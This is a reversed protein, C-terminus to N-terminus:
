REGNAPEVPAASVFNPRVALFAQFFLTRLALEKTRCLHAFNFSIWKCFLLQDFWRSRIEDEAYREVPHPRGVAHMHVM